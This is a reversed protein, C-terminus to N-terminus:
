AVIQTDVYDSLSEKSTVITDLDPGYEKGKRQYGKTDLKRATYGHTAMHQIGSTERSYWLYKVVEPDRRDYSVGNIKGGEFFVKLGNVADPDTPMKYAQRFEESTNYANFIKQLKVADGTDKRTEVSRVQYNM